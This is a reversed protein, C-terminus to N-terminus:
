PTSSPPHDALSPQVLKWADYAATIDSYFLDALQVYGRSTFHTHDPLALGSSVWRNM